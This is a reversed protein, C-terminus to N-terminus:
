SSSHLVVDKAQYAKRSHDLSLIILRLRAADSRLAEQVNHLYSSRNSSTDKAVVVSQRDADWEQPYLKYSTSGQRTARKHIVQIFLTGQKGSVSSARFKFKTTAM